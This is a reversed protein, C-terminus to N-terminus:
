LYHGDAASLWGYISGASALPDAQTLWWGRACNEGM